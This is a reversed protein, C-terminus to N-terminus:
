YTEVIVYFACIFGVGINKGTFPLLRNFSERVDNFSGEKMELFM